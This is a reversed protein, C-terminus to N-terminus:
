NKEYSTEKPRTDAYPQNQSVFKDVDLFARGLEDMAEDDVVHFPHGKFEHLQDM